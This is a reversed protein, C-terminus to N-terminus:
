SIFTFAFFVYLDSSWPTAESDDDDDSDTDEAADEEEETAADEEEAAEGDDIGSESLREILCGLFFNYDKSNAWLNVM